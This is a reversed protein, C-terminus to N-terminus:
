FWNIRWCSDNRRQVNTNHFPLLGFWGYKCNNYTCRQIMLIKFDDSLTIVDKFITIRFGALSISVINHFKKLNKLGTLEEVHTMEGKFLSVISHWYDSSCNFKWNPYQYEKFKHRGFQFDMNKFFTIFYLTFFNNIFEFIRLPVSRKPPSSIIYNLFIIILM